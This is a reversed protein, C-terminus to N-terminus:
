TSGAPRGSCSASRAKRSRESPAVGVARARDLEDLAVRLKSRSLRPLVHSLDCDGVDPHRAPDNKVALDLYGRGPPAGYGTGISDGLSVVLVPGDHWVGNSWPARDFPVAVPGSGMAGPIRLAFWATIPVLLAWALVAPRLAFWRRVRGAPPRARGALRRRLDVAVWGFLGLAALACAWDAPLSITLARRVGVFAAAALAALLVGVAVLGFATPRRPGEITPPQERVSM